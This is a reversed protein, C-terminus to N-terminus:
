GVKRALPVVNGAPPPTNLFGAWADMMERRRELMDGRRYAAEVDSGITHALAMEALDRPFSTREAAWDRFTSRMGHPVADVGMRRMVATLAMDSLPGGRAGPFILNHDNSLRPLDALLKLAAASLPVRHEKGAKMRDAALVWVKATTDIEAWTAGRVEGSRAATLLAWELARPAIGDMARLAVTFAHAQDLGIAPHHKVKAVKTPKPLLKDLHGRWRAPNDGDRYKRAAAWDLVSEIRGRLRSATETKTTWIPELVQLVHPLDVDAVALDGLVPYAHQELTNAYQQAHKANRWGARHALIYAQAAQRFTITAAQRAKLAQRNARVEEIPDIGRRVKERAERARDRAQALTVDPFGGLGMDRRREGIVMRLVWTRGGTPLVQLALGAVGGVFYLGPTALNRVEIPSMERVKTAM